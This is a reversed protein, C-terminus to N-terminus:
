MTSVEISSTVRHDDGEDGGQQRCEDEDKQVDSMVVVSGVLGPRPRGRVRAVVGVM